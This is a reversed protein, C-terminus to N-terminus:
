GLGLGLGLGLRLERRELNRKVHQIPFRGGGDEGEKTRTVGRGHDGVKAREAVDCPGSLEEDLRVAGAGDSQDVCM